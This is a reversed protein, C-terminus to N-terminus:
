CWLAATRNLTNRENPSTECPLLCERFVLGDLDFYSSFLFLQSIQVSSHVQASLDRLTIVTYGLGKLLVEMSLEDKDAGTRDSLNKFEVNNILLALRKRDPSKDKIPYIKVSFLFTIITLKCMINLCLVLCLLFVFM